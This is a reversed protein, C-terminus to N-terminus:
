NKMYSSNVFEEQPSIEPPSFQEFVPQKQAYQVPGVRVKSPQPLIQQGKYYAFISYEGPESTPISVHYGKENPTLYGKIKAGSETTAGVILDENSEVEIECDIEINENVEVQSPIDLIISSISPNSNVVINFPSGPLNHDGWFLKLQYQGSASVYYHVEYMYESLSVVKVEAGEGLMEATLKGSGTGECNVVFKSWEGVVGGPIGGEIRCMSAGGQGTLYTLNFPSGVMTERKIKLGCMITLKYEDGETPVFDLNCEGGFLQQLSLPIPQQTAISELVASIDNIEIGESKLGFKCNFATAAKFHVMFPSGQIQFGNYSLSIKFDGVIKPVLSCQYQTSTVAKCVIDAADHPVCSIDMSGTSIEDTAITFQYSKGVQFVQDQLNLGTITKPSEFFLTYVEGVVSGGWLIVMEYKGAVKPDIEYKNARQGKIVRFPLETSGTFRVELKDPFGNHIISFSM